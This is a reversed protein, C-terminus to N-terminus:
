DPNILIQSTVNIEKEKESRPWHKRIAEQVFAEIQAEDGQSNSEDSYSLPFFSLHCDIHVNVFDPSLKTSLDDPVPLHIFTIKSTELEYLLRSLTQKFADQDFQPSDGTIFIYFNKIDKLTNIDAGFRIGQDRM